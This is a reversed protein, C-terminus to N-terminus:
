FDVYCIIGFVYVGECMFFGEVDGKSVCIYGDFILEYVSELDFFYILILM